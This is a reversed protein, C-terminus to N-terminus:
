RFEHRHSFSFPCICIFKACCPLFCPLLVCSFIGSFGPFFCCFLRPSAIKWGFRKTQLSIQLDAVVKPKLMNTQLSKSPQKTKTVDVVTNSWFYKELFLIARDGPSMNEKAADVAESASFNSFIQCGHIEYICFCYLFPSLVFSPFLLPVFSFVLHEM